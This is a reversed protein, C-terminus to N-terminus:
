LHKELHLRLAQRGKMNLHLGDPLWHDKDFSMFPLCQINPVKQDTFNLQLAARLKQNSDASAFPFEVILCQTRTSPLVAKLLCVTDLVTEDDTRGKGMDNTGLCIIVVDYQDEELLFSLGIGQEESQFADRIDMGPVCENHVTCHQVGHRLARIDFLISDGYILINQATHGHM